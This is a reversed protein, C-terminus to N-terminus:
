GRLWAHRIQRTAALLVALEVAMGTVISLSGLVAGPWRGSWAGALLMAVLAIGNCVAALNVTKTRGQGILLGQLWNQLAVALPYLLAVQTAPLAQEALPSSVGLIRTLYPLGTAPWAALALLATFALGAAWAFRRMQQYSHRDHVLTIVLQQVMRTGNAVLLVNGWAVPWAALALAADPTRAIGANIVPRTVWVLIATAMLPLYFRAVGGLTQPLAGAGEASGPAGPGPDPEGTGRVCAVATALGARRAYLTVVAAESIVSAILAAGAVVTGPAKLAVGILVLATLTLLRVASAIGVAGSLRQHILWGQHYRRWGIAAPWLLLLAFTAWGAQAVPEPLGLWGQFLITYLPTFALLGYILTLAGNILLMFRRLQAFSRPEKSLATSAHLLMIIPSELLIAVNLAVSYAALSIEPAALRALGAALIPGALAMIIDSLSLPLFLSAIDRLRLQSSPSTPLHSM